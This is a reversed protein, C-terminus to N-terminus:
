MSGRCLYPVAPPGGLHARCRGGATCLRVGQRISTSLSISFRVHQWNWSERNWTFMMCNSIRPLLPLGLLTGCAASSCSASTGSAPLFSRGRFSFPAPMESVAALKGITAVLGCFFCAGLVFGEPGGARRVLGNGLCFTTVEPQLLEMRM